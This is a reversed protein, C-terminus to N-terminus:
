DLRIGRDPRDDDILLQSEHAFAPVLAAAARMGLDRGDCLGPFARAARRKKDREFRAAM